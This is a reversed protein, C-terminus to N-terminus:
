QFHATCFERQRRRAAVQKGAALPSTEVEEIWRSPIQLITRIKQKGNEVTSGEFVFWKKPTPLLTLHEARTPLIVVGRVEVSAERASTISLQMLTWLTRDGHERERRLVYINGKAAYLGVPINLKEIEKFLVDTKSVADIVPLPEDDGQFVLPVPLSDATVTDYRYLSPFKNMKLFYVVRGIAAIYPFGLLYYDTSDGSPMVLETIPKDTNGSHDLQHRFFGLLDYDLSKEDSGLAGFAFLQDGAVAWEYLGYIKYGGRYGPKSTPMVSSTGRPRFEQDFWRIGSPIDNEEAVIQIFGGIARGVARPELWQVLDPDSLCEGTESLKIVKKSKPDTIVIESDEAMWISSRIWSVECDVPYHKCSEPYVSRAVFLCSYSFILILLAKFHM